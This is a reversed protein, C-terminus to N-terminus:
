TRKNDAMSTDKTDSFVRPLLLVVWHIWRVNQTCTDGKFSTNM